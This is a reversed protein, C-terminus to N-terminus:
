EDTGEAARIAAQLQNGFAVRLAVSTPAGQLWIAYAAKCAELLGELAAAAEDDEANYCRDIAREIPSM